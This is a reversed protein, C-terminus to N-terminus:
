EATPPRYSRSASWSWWTSTAAVSWTVRVESAEPGITLSSGSVACATSPSCMVTVRARAGSSLRPASIDTVGRGLGPAAWGHLPAPTSRRVARPAGAHLRKSTSGPRATASTAPKSRSSRPKRTAPAEVTTASPTWWAPSPGPTTTPTIPAVLPPGSAVPSSAAKDPEAPPSGPGTTADPFSVQADGLDAASFGTTPATSQPTPTGAEIPPSVVTAIGLVLGGALCAGLVMGLTRPTLQM